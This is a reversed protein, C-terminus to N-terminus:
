KVPQPVDIREVKFKGKVPYSVETKKDLFFTGEYNGEIYGGVNGVKTVTTTFDDSYIWFGSTKAPIYIAVNASSEFEGETSGYIYYNYDLVIDNDVVLASDPEIRIMNVEKSDMPSLYGVHLAPSGLNFIPSTFTSDGVTFEGMIRIYNETSDVSEKQCSVFTVGLLTIVTIFTLLKKM